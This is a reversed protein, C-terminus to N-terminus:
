SWAEGEEEREKGRISIRRVKGADRARVALAGCDQIDLAELARIFEAKAAELADMACPERRLYPGLAPLHAAIAQKTYVEVGDDLAIAQGLQFAMSKVRELRGEEPLEWALATLDAERALRLRRAYGDKLARRAAGGYNTHRLEMVLKRLVSLRKLLADRPVARTIPLAGDQAHLPCTALLSNNLEDVFGKYCAAVVGDRVVCLNRNEAPDASCFLQCERQPPLEDVIYVVDRDRSDASGHIFRGLINM